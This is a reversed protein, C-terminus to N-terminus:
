SAASDDYPIQWEKPDLQALKLIQQRKWQNFEAYSSFRKVTLGPIRVGYPLPEVHPQRAWMEIKARYDDTRKM